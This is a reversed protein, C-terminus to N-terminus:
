ASAGEPTAALVLPDGFGGALDYLEILELVAASHDVLRLPTAAADAERKAAILLQMGATDIATIGALDLEVEIADTLAELLATKVAAAAYITLEGEFRLCRADGRQETDINM